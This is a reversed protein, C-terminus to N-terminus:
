PPLRGGGCPVLSSHCLARRGRPYPGNACCRLQRRAGGGNGVSYPARCVKAAYTAKARLLASQGLDTYSIVALNGSRLDMVM